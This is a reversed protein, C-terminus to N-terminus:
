LCCCLFPVCHAEGVLIVPKTELLLYVNDMLTPMTFNLSACPANNNQARVSPPQLTTFVYCHQSEGGMQQFECGGLLPGGGNRLLM